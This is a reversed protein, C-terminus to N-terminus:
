HSRVTFSTMVTNIQDVNQSYCIALCHVVLVYAETGDANTLAVQDFTDTLGDPYTYDFTERVGHFGEGPALMVDRLQRFGTLAIGASAAQQRAVRTVPLVFDRLMNYSMNNVGKRNLPEVIAYAFPRTARDSFVDAAQPPTSADYGIRWVNSPAAGSPSAAALAAEDFKTWGSPVKFYTHAASNTVYTFEPAACGAAAVTALAVVMLLRAALGPRSM